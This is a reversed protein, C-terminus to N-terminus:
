FIFNSKLINKLTIIEDFYGKDDVTIKSLLFANMRHMKFKLAAKGAYM